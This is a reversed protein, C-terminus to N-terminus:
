AGGSILGHAKFFANQRMASLNKFRDSNIYPAVWEPWEKEPFDDDESSCTIDSYWCSCENLCCFMTHLKNMADLIGFTKQGLGEGFPNKKKKKGSGSGSGGGLSTVADYLCTVCSFTHTWLRLILSFIKEYGDVTPKCGPSKPENSGNGGGSDGGTAHSFLDWIAKFILGCAGSDGRMDDGFTKHDAHSGQESINRGFCQYAKVVPAKIRSYFFQTETQIASAGNEVLGGVIDGIYNCFFDPLFAKCIACLACTLLDRVAGWFSVEGLCIKVGLQIVCPMVIQILRGALGLVLIAANVMNAIQLIFGGWFHCLNTGQDPHQANPHDCPGKGLSVSVQAHIEMDSIFDAESYHAEVAEETMLLDDLVDHNYDEFANAVALCCLVSFLVKTLM